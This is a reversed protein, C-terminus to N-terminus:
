VVSNIKGSVLPLFDSIMTDTTKTEEAAETRSKCITVRKSGAQPEYHVGVCKTNRKTNQSGRKILFWDSQILSLEFLMM